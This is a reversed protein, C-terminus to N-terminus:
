GINYGKLIKVIRSAARGDGYPNVMNPLQYLAMFEDLATHIKDKDTGVLRCHGSQVGEPRETTERMLIVRKGLSPAEEQVGGSDSIVLRCDAMLHIFEAYALPAVLNVNKIGEFVTRAVNTVAPNPHVPYIFDINEHSKAYEAIATFANTMPQGFNERRHCTVLIYDREKSIHPLDLQIPKVKMIYQLADVVTNGTTFVAGAVGEVRLNTAAMDTPAFHWQASLSAIRRNWEEPRPDYIDYTRLGAEIHGFPVGMNFCTLATAAVTTTDGQALVVSPQEDIILKYMRGIIKSMLEAPNQSPRMLKFNIDPKLKFYKLAEDVLEIHQGTSVLKHPINAAQLAKIVPAMKIAEPRTGIVCLIM